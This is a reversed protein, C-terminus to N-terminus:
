KGRPVGGHRHVARQRHGARFGIARQGIRAEAPCRPQQQSDYRGAARDVACLPVCRQQIEAGRRRRGFNGFDASRGHESTPKGTLASAQAVDARSIRGGQRGTQQLYAYLLVEAFDLRGVCCVARYPIDANQIKIINEIYRERNALSFLLRCGIRRYVCRQRVSM